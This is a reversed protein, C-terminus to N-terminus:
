LIVLIKVEIDIISSSETKNFPEIINSPEVMNTPELINSQEIINTPEMINPLESINSQEVNDSPQIINSPEINEKNNNDFQFCPRVVVNEAPFKVLISEWRNYCFYKYFM